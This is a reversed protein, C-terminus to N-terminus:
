GIVSEIQHISLLFFIAFGVISILLLVRALEALEAFTSM